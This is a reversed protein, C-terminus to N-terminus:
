GIRQALSLPSTPLPSSSPEILTGPQRLLSPDIYTMDTLDDRRTPSDRRPAKTKMSGSPGPSVPLGVQTQPLGHAKTSHKVPKSPPENRENGEVRHRSLDCLTDISTTLDKLIGELRKLNASTWQEEPPNDPGQLALGLKSHGRPLSISQPEPQLAEAEDLLERISCMISAVLDSIGARDLSGDIDGAYAATSRDSWQIGWAILRDKQIRLKLHLHSAEPGSKRTQVLAEYSKKNDAFLQTLRRPLATSRM